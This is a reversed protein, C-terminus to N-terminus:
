FKIKDFWNQILYLLPPKGTARLGSNVLFLGAVVAMINLLYPLAGFTILVAGIIISIKGKTKNTYM